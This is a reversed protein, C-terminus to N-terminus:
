SLCDWTESVADYEWRSVKCGSLDQANTMYALVQDGTAPFNDGDHEILYITDVYEPEDAM